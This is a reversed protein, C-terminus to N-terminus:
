GLGYNSLFSYFWLLVTHAKTSIDLSYLLLEYLISLFSFITGSIQLAGKYQNIPSM